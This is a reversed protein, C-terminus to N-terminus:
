LPKLWGREYCADLIVQFRHEMTHKEVVLKHGNAAVERCKEPEALLEEVRGPLSASDAYTFLHEGPTFLELLESCEEALLAGGSALVDFVRMTIIDRQYLRPIDLNLQSACYIRTLEEGHNAVGRYTVGATEWGTDGWVQIGADSLSKVREMRLLHALRGNAAEMCQIRESQATVYILFEEPLAEAPDTLGCWNSHGMRADFICQLFADLEPVRRELQHEDLVPVFGASDGQLSNGVFSVPATYPKLSETHDVPARREHPAALKLPRVDKIELAKFDEVSAERHSFVMCSALETGNRVAMRGAPLPDITWSLYPKRVFTALLALDPSYNISIILDPNWERCMSRFPGVKLEAAPLVKVEFGSREFLAVLDKQILRYEIVVIRGRTDTHQISSTSSM